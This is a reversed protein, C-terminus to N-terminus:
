DTIRLFTEILLLPFIVFMFLFLGYPICLQKRSFIWKRNKIPKDDKVVTKSIVKAKTM